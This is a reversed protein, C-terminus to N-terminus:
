SLGMNKKVERMTQSAIEKARKAGELLTKKIEKEKLKKRREQIPKLEKFINEALLKKCELCGIKAQTCGEVVYDLDKKDSVLQHLTYLNCKEPTGPDTKRKRAPDTMATSLKRYITEKSDSLAIYSEPGYSKSMKKTPDTLSMLRSGKTLLSKPSPFTEGFKKNFCRAIERTLEVHQRQDDGVPVVQAKYLLIDAAMLVPYNFLGANVNETNQKSKEKFQTMRKLDGLSTITSLIWALETHEAVASQVFIISKKPDLGCALYDGALDLIRQPMKKPEYSITIAHYDVICFLGSYEEQLKIWNKIAGFYNGIHLLGTPQIGSFLRKKM